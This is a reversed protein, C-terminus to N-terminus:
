RFLEEVQQTIQELYDNSILKIRRKNENLNYEYDYVTVPTWGFREEVTWNDFTYPNVQNGEKEYHRITVQTQYFDGYKKNLFDFFQNSTLPWQYYPDYINNTVYILWAYTSSGYYDHAITDAREGESIEYDYYVGIRSLVQKIPKVRRLINTLSYGRYDVRDYLDFIEM